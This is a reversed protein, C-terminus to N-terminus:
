ECHFSCMMCLILNTHSIICLCFHSGMICTVEFSLACLIMAATGLREGPQISFSVGKLVDPLGKRYCLTVNQFKIGGRSPWESPPKSV